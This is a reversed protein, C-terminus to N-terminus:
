AGGAGKEGEQRRPPLLPLPSTLPLPSFFFGPPKFPRALRPEWIPLLLLLLSIGEQYARRKRKRRGLRVSRVGAENGGKEGGETEREM